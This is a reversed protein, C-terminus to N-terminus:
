ACCATITATGGYGLNWANADLYAYGDAEVTSLDGIELENTVIEGDLYCVSSTFTGIFVVLRDGGTTFAFLVLRFETASIRYLNIGLGEEVVDDFLCEEGGLEAGAGSAGLGIDWECFGPEGVNEICFTGNSSATSTSVFKYCQTGSGLLLETAVITLGTITITFSQPTGDACHECDGAAPCGGCYGCLISAAGSMHM